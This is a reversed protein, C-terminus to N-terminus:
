LSDTFSLAVTVQSTLFFTTRVKKTLKFTFSLNFVVKKRPVKLNIGIKISTMSNRYNVQVKGLFM